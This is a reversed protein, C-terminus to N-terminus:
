PIFLVGERVLRRVLVLRGEDDLPGPLAGVRFPEGRLAFRLAEAAVAPFAIESGYLMLGVGGGDHARLRFLLSPRPAVTTDASLTALRDIQELQGPLIPHRTGILDEAFHDFVDDFTAEAAFRELLTRFHARAAERDFGERAFGPPLGRRFAPDRLGLRALSEAMLDTFSTHLVGLTIHVSDSGEVTRADHLLGRPVYAMDGAELVFERSVEGVPVEDPHFEQRRFPLEVPTDYLRWHKRGHVQLVFVDHSDYHTRFGQAHGPTFYVNTQFRTSMEAEMARCLAALPPLASELGAFVITSGDAFHQFLRATDILGSAYTYDAPGHKRQANTLSVAPHNINRGNLYADLDARTLLESFHAADGRRVVLAEREWHDRLFAEATVPEILRSLNWPQTM